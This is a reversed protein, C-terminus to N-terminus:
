IRKGIPPSRTVHRPNFSALERPFCCSSSQVRVHDPQAGQFRPFIQNTEMAAARAPILADGLPQSPSQVLRGSTLFGIFYSLM